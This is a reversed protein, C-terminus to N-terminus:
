YSYQEQINFRINLLYYNEDEEVEWSDYRIFRVTGLYNSPDDLDKIIGEIQRYMDDRNIVDNHTSKAFALSVQWIQNDYLRTNLNEGDPDISGELPALIFRKNYETATASEFTFPEKSEIYGLGELRNRVYNKTTDFSM